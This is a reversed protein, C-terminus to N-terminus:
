RKLLILLFPLNKFNRLTVITQSEKYSLQSGITKLINSGLKALGIPQDRSLWLRPFLWKSVHKKVLIVDALCVVIHIPNVNTCFPSVIIFFADYHILLIPLITTVQRFALILRQLLIKIYPQFIFQYLITFSKLRWRTFRKDFSGAGVCQTAQARLIIKKEIYTCLVIM